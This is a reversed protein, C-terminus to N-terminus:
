DEELVKRAIEEATLPAVATNDPRLRARRQTVVEDVDDKLFRLAIEEATLPAVATNDPRLRPRRQTVLDQVDM